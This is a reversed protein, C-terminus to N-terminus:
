GPKQLSIRHGEQGSVASIRPKQGDATYDCLFLARQARIHIGYGSRLMRNRGMRNNYYKTKGGAKPLHGNSGARSLAYQGTELVTEHNM